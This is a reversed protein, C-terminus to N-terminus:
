RKKDPKRYLAPMIYEFDTLNKDITESHGIFLYGGPELFDYFRRVLRERTPKDFYIMVNRCFIAHFQRKFPFPNMLNFRRFLVEQKVEDHIKYEGMSIKKFFRFKYQPPMKNFREEPYEGKQAFKLVNSDIDTALVGASWLNYRSELYDMMLIVLMYPEEGTSCGASWIRLDHSQSQEIKKTLEPLLHNEFFKFHANERYFFTLNTSIADVLESAAQGSRDKEFFKIYETYSDFGRKLLIPVLRTTLLIKKVEPIDIGFRDYIIKSLEKFEKSSINM